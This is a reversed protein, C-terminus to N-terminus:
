TELSTHLGPGPIQLVAEPSSSSHTPFPLCSSLAHSSLRQGPAPLTDVKTLLFSYSTKPRSLPSRSGERGKEKRTLATFHLALLPPHYWGPERGVEWSLGPFLCLVILCCTALARGSARPPLSDKIANNKPEFGIFAPHGFYVM